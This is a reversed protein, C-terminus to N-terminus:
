PQIYIYYTRTVKSEKLDRVTTEMTIQLKAVKDQEAVLTTRSQEVESKLTSIEDQLNLVVADGLTEGTPPSYISEPNDISIDFAASQRPNAGFMNIDSQRGISGTNKHLCTFFSKKCIKASNRFFYM